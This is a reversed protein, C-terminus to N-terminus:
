LAMCVNLAAEQRIKHQIDWDIVNRVNELLGSKEHDSGFYGWCSDTEIGDADEIRYGYIDGRLFQDYVEVEYKLHQEIKEQRSNIMHKWGYEKKVKETSVYIYGVQGSDWPCSFPGTSMTIGSHDYLYLPLSIFLKSFAESPDDYDEGTLNCIIEKMWDEVSDTRQEDGLCYKRHWCVMTGLNDWERPSQPASDHFIKVKFGDIDLVEIPEEKMEREGKENTTACLHAMLLM